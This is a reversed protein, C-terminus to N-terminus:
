NKDKKFAKIIEDMNSVRHTEVFGKREYIHISYCYKWLAVDGLFYKTSEINKANGDIDIMDIRLTMGSLSITVTKGKKELKTALKLDKHFTKVPRDDIVQKKRRGM